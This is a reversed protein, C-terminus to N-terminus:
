RDEFNEDEIDEDEIREVEVIPAADPLDIVLLTFVDVVRFEGETSRVENEAQELCEKVQQKWAGTYEVELDETITGTDGHADKLSLRVTSPQDYESSM